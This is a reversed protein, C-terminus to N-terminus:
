LESVIAYVYSHSQNKTCNHAMKHQQSHVCKSSSTQVGEVCNSGQTPLGGVSPSLICYYDSLVTTSDTHPHGIICAYLM